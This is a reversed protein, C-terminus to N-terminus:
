RPKATLMRAVKKHRNYVLVASADLQEVAAVLGVGPAFFRYQTDNM